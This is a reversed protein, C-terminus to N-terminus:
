VRIGTCEYFIDADFNPLSMVTAKDEKSLKDWGAQRSAATRFLSSIIIWADSRMWDYITWSSSKNFMKIKPDRHTNFCGASWNGTNFDGANWDGANWNGTNWDGTNSYGANSDGANRNGSNWDGTNDYGTNWDGYNSNGINHNGANKNGTNRSGANWNGTNWNGTNSEGVNCYGAQETLNGRKEPGTIERIIKIKNTVMKDGEDSEQIEGLAEVECIRTAENAPYYGYCSVIDPCFHFGSECIKLSDPDELTYTEGIEYQFGRCTMDSDFAKYGRM